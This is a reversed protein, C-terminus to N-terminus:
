TSKDILNLYKVCIDVVQGLAEKEIVDPTDFRTHYYSPLIEELNLGGITTASIGKKSFAAADTAGFPLKVLSILPNIEKAIEFLPKYIKSDHTAGIGSERTFIGLIDKKAIGDMNVVATDTKKLDELHTDIYRKAGRL